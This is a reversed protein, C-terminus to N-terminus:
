AVCHRKGSARADNRTEIEGPYFIEDTGIGRPGSKLEAILTDMDAEFDVLPRCAAPPLRCAAIDIITAIAYGKHGALAM